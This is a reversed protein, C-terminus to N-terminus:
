ALGGNTSSTSVADDPGTSLKWREGAIQPV